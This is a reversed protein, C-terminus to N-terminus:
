GGAAYRADVGKGEFPTRPFGGRGRPGEAMLRAVRGGRFLEIGAMRKRAEPALGRVDRNFRIKGRVIIEGAHWDVDSLGLAAAEAGAAAADSRSLLMVDSLVTM